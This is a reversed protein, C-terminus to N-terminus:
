PQGPFVWYSRKSDRGIQEAAARNPYPGLVVRYITTGARQSPVVRAHAGSVQISDALLRAKAENLLAAFSVTFPASASATPPPPPPTATATATATATPPRPSPTTQQQSGQAVAPAPRAVRTVSDLVAKTGSDSVSTDVPPATDANAFSVPQDVGAARARFGNWFTFYWFDSAGGAVTRVAQLTEGDVFIVDRGSNLAIAGDPATAPLDETWKTRVSGVVHNTAVALVWASDGRAPRVLVYRGLGDMRLDSIEGPLQVTTSVKDTYRDIVALTSDGSTAVYIRDGSPTPALAAVHGHVRISPVESLDRSRVGVLASDTAFYIRDGVQAHLAHMTIPLLVTDRVKTDPPHMLWLVVESGHQAAIVLSGDSQPFVARAPYPPTFSWDGGRTLRVVDGKQDVGYIESGTPAVLSALTAKSAIASEGLRLDVRAPAGKANVIALAGGEPDFGLVRDVSTTHGSWVVSDLRPYLYARVTGGARPLRLLIPDPGRSAEARAANGATDSNGRRDRGCAVVSLILL